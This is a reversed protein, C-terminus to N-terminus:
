PTFPVNWYTEYKKLYVYTPRSSVKWGVDSNFGILIRADDTTNYGCVEGYEVDKHMYPRESATMHYPEGVNNEAYIKILELAKTMNNKINQM